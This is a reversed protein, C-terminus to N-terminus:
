FCLEGFFLLRDRGLERHGLGALRRVALRFLGPFVRLFLHGLPRLVGREVPESVVRVVVRVVLFLADGDRARSTLRDRRRLAAVAAIVPRLLDKGHAEDKDGHRDGDAPEQEVFQVEDLEVVPHLGFHLRGFVLRRSSAAAM